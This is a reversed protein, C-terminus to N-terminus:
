KQGREITKWSIPPRYFLMTLHTYLQLFLYLIGIIPTKRLHSWLVILRLKIDILEYKAVLPAPFRTSIMNPDTLFRHMQQIYDAFNTPLSIHAKATKAVKVQYGKSIAYYFSYSDEGIHTGLPLRFEKAFKRSFARMGGQCYYRIGSSGLSSRCGDWVEAGFLALQSALTDGGRAQLYGCVIGINQQENFHKVLSDIVQNDALDIDSDLQILIDSQNISVIQNFRFNKGKNTRNEMIQLSPFHQRVIEVTKDQSCDDVLYLKKLDYNLSSQAKLQRLLSLIHSSDNYTTIAITVTPLAIHKNPM